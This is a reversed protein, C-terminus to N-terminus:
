RRGGSARPPRAPRGGGGKPRNMSKNGRASNQKIRQNGQGAFAGGGKNQRQQMQRQQQPKQRQQQNRMQQKHANNQRLQQTSKNNQKLSQNGRTSQNRAAKNNKLKQNGQLQGSGGQGLQRQINASSPRKADPTRRTASSKQRAKQGSWKMKDTSGAKREGNFKNQLENRHEVRNGSGIDGRNINTDGRSNDINIDNDIDIDGNDWDFGYSFAAGVFMGTFFTAAPAWYPPYPDSYYPPPYNTYNNYVVPAPDYQPVYIVEPDKSEVTINDGENVVTVQDNSQLYGADSASGRAAQIAKLVDDQQDLVANGLDQCWSIDDSLKKLAEPYNILALVSPDWEENPQLNADKARQDLFRQAEIVQIPNTAAPLVIALLEDPYLAVPAVLANLEEATLLTSSQNGAADGSAAAESSTADAFQAEADHSSLAMLWLFLAAVSFRLAFFFM